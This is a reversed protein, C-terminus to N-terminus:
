LATRTRPKLLFLASNSHTQSLMLNPSSATCNCSVITWCVLSRVVRHGGGGCHLGAVHVKCEQSGADRAERESVQAAADALQAKSMLAATEAAECRAARDEAEQVRAREGLLMEEVGEKQTAVVEMAAEADELRGQLEALQQRLSDCEEQAQQLQQQVDSSATANAAAGLAACAEDREAQLAGLLM